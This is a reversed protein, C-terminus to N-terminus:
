KISKRKACHRCCPKGSSMSTYSKASHHQMASSEFSDISCPDIGTIIGSKVRFVCAQLYVVVVINVCARGTVQSIPKAFVLTLREIGVIRGHLQCSIVVAYKRKECLGIFM